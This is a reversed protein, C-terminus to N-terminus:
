QLNASTTTPILTSNNQNNYYGWHDQSKSDKKPLQTPNYLFEYNNIENKYHDKTSFKNLKLRLENMSSSNTNSKFYDYNFIFTKNLYRISDLKLGEDDQRGSTCFNVSFNELSIKELFKTSTRILTTHYDTNILSFNPCYSCDQQWVQTESKSNSFSNSSKYTFSIVEATLPNVIRNLMWSSIYNHISGFPGNSANTIEIFQNNARSLTDGFYYVLGNSHTLIFGSIEGQKYLPVINVDSFPITTPIGHNNFMFSGSGSPDSFYFADAEYDKINRMVGSLFNLASGIRGYTSLDLDILYESPIQNGTKIFGSAHDDDPRCRVTRSIRGGVTLDWGLGIWSGEEEVKIGSSHYNLSVPLNIGGQSLEFVPINIIPVGTNLSVPTETFKGM